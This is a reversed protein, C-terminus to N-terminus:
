AGERCEQLVKNALDSLGTPQGRLHRLIARRDWLYAERRCDYYLPDCRIHKFHKLCYAYRAAETRLSEPVKITEWNAIAEFYDLASQTYRLSLAQYPAVGAVICPIGLYSLEIAVSSRWILGCSMEASLDRLTFLRPPLLVVNAPLDPVADRIFSALTEDPTKEPYDYRVEVPHPKLILLDERNRFYEITARIWDCMDNFSPSRDDVPTDYFLHSFLVFVNRGNSRYERIIALVDEQDPAAESKPAPKVVGEIPAILAHHAIRKAEASELERRTVELRSSTVGPAFCKAVFSCSRVDHGFYHM